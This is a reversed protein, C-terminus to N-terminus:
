TSVMIPPVKDYGRFNNQNAFKLSCTQFSKSCGPWFQITDGATPAQNLPYALHLSSSDNADCMTLLGTNVGSTFLVRGQCYTSIGDAGNPNPVGGTLLLSQNGYLAISATQTFDSQVLTCGQSFLTWNCGPQYYNRPMNVTLRNLASKVQLEVHTIGGKVIKAVYGTFLPWVALPQLQVDESVIGSTFPWIARLRVIQAGDLLGQQVAEPFSAGFLTDQSDAWIKLTQEDVNTGVAIKRQMGEFRLSDSKWVANDYNIDIDLDTFTDVVGTVSTFQYLHGMIGRNTALVWAIYQRSVKLNQQLTIQTM